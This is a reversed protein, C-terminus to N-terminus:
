LKDFISNLEQLATTYCVAGKRLNSPEFGAVPLMTPYNNLFLGKKKRKKKQLIDLKDFICNLGQLVTASCVAGKRLISPEFGAVPLMAPYNNLFM